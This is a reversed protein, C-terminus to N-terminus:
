EGEPKVLRIEISATPWAAPPLTEAELWGSIRALAIGSSVIDSWRAAAEPNSMLVDTLRQLTQEKTAIIKEKAADAHPRLWEVMWKRVDARQARKRANPKWSGELPYKAKEAARYAAKAETLGEAIGLALEQAFTRLKQDRM